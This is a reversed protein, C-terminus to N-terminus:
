RVDCMEQSLHKVTPSLERRLKCSCETLFNELFLLVPNVLSMLQKNCSGTNHDICLNQAEGTVMFAKNRQCINCFVCVCVLM